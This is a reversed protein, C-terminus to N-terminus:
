LLGVSALFPCARSVVVSDVTTSLSWSGRRFVRTCVCLALHFFVDLSGKVIMPACRSSTTSCTFCTCSGSSLPTRDFLSACRLDCLLSVTFCPDCLSACLCSRTDRMSLEQPDQYCQADVHALSLNFRLELLIAPILLYNPCIGDFCLYQSFSRHAANLTSVFRPPRTNKRM